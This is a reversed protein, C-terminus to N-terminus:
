PEAARCDYLWPTAPAANAPLDDKRLMTVLSFNGMVPLGTAPPVGNETIAARLTWTAGWDKSQYLNYAGDFMPCILTKTDIGSPVGTCYEPLPMYGREDFGTGNNTFRIRAPANWEAGGADDRTFVLVGEPVALLDRSLFRAAGIPLGDYLTTSASLACGAGTNILGMKVKVKVVPTTGDMEIYPVHGIAVSLTRSLPATRLNAEAIADNFYGPHGIDLGTITLLEAAFMSDTASAWGLGGDTTYNFRLGPCALPDITTVVDTPRLYRDMKLIVGPALVSPTAYWGIQGPLYETGGLTRTTGDDHVFAQLYQGGGDLGTFTLGTYFTPTTGVYRYGGRVIFSLTGSAEQPVAPNYDYLDALVRGNRTRALTNAFVTAPDGDFDTYVTSPGNKLISGWGKGYFGVESLVFGGNDPALGRDSFTGRATASGLVHTGAGVLDGLVYYGDLALDPKQFINTFEGAKRVLANGRRRTTFDASDGQVWNAAQRGQSTPGNRFKGYAM